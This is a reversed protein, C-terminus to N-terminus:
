DGLVLIKKYNVDMAKRFQITYMGHKLGTVEIKDNSELIRFESVGRGAADYITFQTANKELDNGFDIVFRNKTPNPYVEITANRSIEVGERCVINVTVANSARSCNNSNTVICKYKGTTKSSYNINTAGAINNAYKKWQYNFGAGANATLVVSDGACINTAGSASISAPPLPNVTVDIANSSKSCGSANTVVVKYKGTATVNLSPGTAGVVINGYKKWQYAYGTGTVANLTVNGGACFTTAGAATISATPPGVTINISISTVAGCSNTISCSYSGAVTPYYYYLNAGNINASNLKWQYNNGHEAFIFISDGACFSTGSLAYIMNSPTQCQPTYEWWDNTQTSGGTYTNINGTGVYGKGNIHTGTPRQRGLTPLEAKNIWSNSTPNYELLTSKKQGNWVSYQGCAIYGRGNIAFAASENLNDPTSAIASWSNTVPDYKYSSALLSNAGDGACVYGKDAITFCAAERRGLGPFNAIPTWANTAPNYKYFDSPFTYNLGIGTGVYAIDGIVFTSLGMYAVGPYSAMQIWSNTAPNYQWLDSNTVPNGGQGMGFYGKGGISFATAELRMQVPVNAKQTWTNTQSDFEWFFGGLFSPAGGGMYCKSGITFSSAMEIGTVPVSARPYWSDPTGQPQCIYYGIDSYFTPNTPLNPICYLGNGLANLQGLDNPLTPLFAISNNTCTIYQLAAPLAPLSTLNNNNCWLAYMNAPLAPLSSLNCGSVDLNVITSPISGISNIPNNDIKLQTVQSPINPWFSIQNNGIYLGNLSSPLQPLYTIQNNSCNIYYLNPLYQIGFIDTIGTGAVELYDITALGPDWTNLDNGVICGPVNDDLIQRFVPDPINVYQQGYTFGSVFIMLLIVISNKM